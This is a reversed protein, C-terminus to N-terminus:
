YKAFVRIKNKKEILEFRIIMDRGQLKTFLTRNYPVNDLLPKHQKMFIRTYDGGIEEILIQIQNDDLNDFHLTLLAIRKQVSTNAKFMANLVEFKLSIFEDVPLLNCVTSAILPNEVITSDDFNKIISLKNSLSMRNSILVQNWDKADLSFEGMRELFDDQYNEILKIHLDKGKSKLGDFNDCSLTLFKQAIMVEIHAISLQNYKVRSYVYPISKILFSFADLSLENNHIIKLSFDKIYELEKKTENNLKSRSLVSYNQESNLFTILPEDFEDAELNELYDFINQWTPKLKNEILLVRRIENENVEQISGIMATQSILLKSRVEISCDERNLISLITTEDELVNDNIKLLVNKIYEELNNSLYITLNDLGSNLLTTYHAKNLEVINTSIRYHKVLVSINHDNIIYLNNKYIHDFLTEISSNPLDLKEFLVKNETIFVRITDTKKLASCFAMFDEMQKLFGLLSEIGDFKSISEKDGFDFILILLSRIEEEPLGSKSYLYQWLTPKYICLAKIFLGLGDSNRKVFGFIFQFQKEGDVALGKFFNDYKGWYREKNVILCEALDYNLIEERKFYKDPLRKLLTDSETLPYEFDLNIGSKVKREFVFDDKTLSIEHFLSIYDDYHEDIYGNLLLNRILYNEKFEALYKEIEVLEFIEKISFSEIESIKNKLKEKEGKLINIQNNARAVLLNERQSYSLKSVENEIFSFRVDSERTYSDNCRYYEIKNSNKISEFNEDTLAEITSVRKYGISFSQFNNIKSVLRNIYVARLEEIPKEQESELLAIHEDIDKIESTIENVLDQSYLGKGSLFKYLKGKRKGLEGFDDPYMNKYVIIAFLNDQVLDKSLNERYILFEHFINILLRMDIDDIFTVVDSTFDPSLVGELNAESILKALQDGANSPNIFPIVPIIFEFFKVRENKDSFMEDKIAYIFKVKRKILNSNNILNNIERLKTFIDTSEFRDVDEIVIVNFDTREFFYLIEELHQNFVSKDIAEGLEFEGKINFKNIKSNSFARYVNKIFFGIGLFFLLTSIFAVWDLQYNFYWVEPNLKDIKNFKFLFLVSLAWAIIFFTLAILKGTTINVIRKFRSDPVVSPEVHYFIQQLISIELKRELAEDAKNDKFSALSVNLYKYNPYLHQFTKLITSKGSGYSGTLAINNVDKADIAQKLSDIYPKIKKLDNQDTLIRPALTNITTNTEHQNIQNRNELHNILKKLKGITLETFSYM